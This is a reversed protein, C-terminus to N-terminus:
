RSVSYGITLGFNYITFRWAPTVSMNMGSVVKSMMTAMVKMSPISVAKM